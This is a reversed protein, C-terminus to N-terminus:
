LPETAILRKPEEDSKMARNAKDFIPKVGPLIDRNCIATGRVEDRRELPALALV